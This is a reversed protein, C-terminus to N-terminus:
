VLVLMESFSRKGMVTSLELVFSKIAKGNFKHQLQKRRGNLERM